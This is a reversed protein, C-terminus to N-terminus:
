RKVRWVGDEGKEYPVPKDNVRVDLTQTPADFRLHLYGWGPAWGNDNLDVMLPKKM